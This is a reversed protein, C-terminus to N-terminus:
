ENSGGVKSLSRYKESLEKIKVDDYNKTAKVLKKWVRTREAHIFKRQKDSKYPM